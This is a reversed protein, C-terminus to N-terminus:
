RSFLRVALRTFTKQSDSEVAMIEYTNGDITALDRQLIGTFYGDLLCHREALTDFRDELRTVAAMDPKMRWVGLMCKINILGARPTFDSQQMDPYGTNDLSDAADGPRALITCLSILLGADEVSHLTQTLDVDIGQHM